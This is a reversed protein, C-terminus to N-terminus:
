APSAFQRAAAIVEAGAVELDCAERLVMAPSRDALIPNLGLFWAQAVQPSDCQTILRASQLAIRMRNVAGRSSVRRAGDAWQRIARTENVGGLYAVLKAGLLARLESVLAADTMRMVAAHVEVETKREDAM